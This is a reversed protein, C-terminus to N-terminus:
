RGGAGGPAPDPDPNSLAPPTGRGRAGHTLPSLSLSLMIDPRDSASESSPAYGMIGGEIPECGKDCDPDPRPRGWDVDTAVSSAACRVEAAEDGRLGAGGGGGGAKLDLNEGEEALRCRGWVWADIASLKRPENGKTGGGGGGGGADADASDCDCGRGVAVALFVAM